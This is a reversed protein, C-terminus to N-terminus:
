TTPSLFYVKIEGLNNSSSIVLPKGEEMYVDVLKNVDDAFSIIKTIRFLQDSKYKSHILENNTTDKEGFHFKEIFIEPTTCTFTLVNYEKTVTFDPTNKILKCLDGFRGSPIHTVSEPSYTYLSSSSVNQSTATKVDLDYAFSNKDEVTIYLRSDQQPVSLIVTNNNKMTKFSKNIYSEIGIHLPEDYTFIYEDFNEALLNVEIIINVTTKTNLRIGDKDITLCIMKLNNFLLEFMTKIKLAYKTKAYFM